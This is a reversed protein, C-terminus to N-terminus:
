FSSPVDDSLSCCGCYSSWSNWSNWSSQELDGQAVVEGMEEAVQRGEEVQRDEEM